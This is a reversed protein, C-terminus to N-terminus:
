TPTEAIVMIDILCAEENLCSDMTCNNICHSGNWICACACERPCFSPNSCEMCDPLECREGSYGPPCICTFSGMTNLCTGNICPDVSSVICENIDMGCRSDTFGPQCSCTFSGFTNQCEGGNMCPSMESACEDIDSDCLKGSYGSLCSCTFKTAADSDLSSSNSSFIPQCTGNNQCSCNINLCEDVTLEMECRDGYYCLPCYTASM